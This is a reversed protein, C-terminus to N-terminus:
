ENYLECGHELLLSRYKLLFHFWVYVANLVCFHWLSHSPIFHSVIYNNPFSVEPFRTVFLVFGLGYWSFMLLFNQYLQDRYTSPTILLWHSFPLLGLIVLFAFVFPRIHYRGIKMEIWPAILGIMLVISTLFLHMGQIEPTCFFGYYTGPLFSGAVLLAVGTLDFKLLQEHHNESICGFWHYISSFFLCIAACFLYSEFAFLELTTTETSIWLDITTYIGGIMVCFFGILHSWINMSENHLEFLTLFADEFTSLSRYGYDIHDFHFCPSVYAKYTIFRKSSSTITSM